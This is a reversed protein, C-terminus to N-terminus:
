DRSRGGAGRRARVTRTLLPVATAVILMNFVLQVSVLVRALQSQASVDGFGTTTAVTLSYYLADVRTTLSGFEGSRATSVAYYTLAFLLVALVIALALSDIRIDDDRSSTHRRLQRGVVIVVLALGVAYSLLRFALSGELPILFYAAVLAAVEAALLGIRVRAAERPSATETM